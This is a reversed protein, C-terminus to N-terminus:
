MTIKNGEATRAHEDPFLNKEYKVALREQLQRLLSLQLDDNAIIIKLDDKIARITENFAKATDENVPLLVPAFFADWDENTSLKPVTRVM